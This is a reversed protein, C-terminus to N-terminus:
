RNRVINIIGGSLIAVIAIVFLITTMILGTDTFKLENATAEVNRSTQVPDGSAILYSVVCVAAAVGIKIITGKLGKGSSFFFPLCIAGVLCAVMLIATWNLVTTIMEDTYGSAYFVIMLVASVAMLIYSLYKLYKM